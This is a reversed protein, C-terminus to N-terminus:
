ISCTVDLFWYRPNNFNILTLRLDIIPLVTLCILFTQFKKILQTVTLKEIFVRIVVIVFPTFLSRMHTHTYLSGKCQEEWKRVGALREEL